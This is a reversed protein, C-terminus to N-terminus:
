TDHAVAIILIIDLYHTQYEELCCWHTMYTPLTPSPHHFDMAQVVAAAQICSLKLQHFSNNLQYTISCQFRIPQCFLALIVIRASIENALTEYSTGTTL